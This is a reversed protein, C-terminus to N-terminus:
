NNKKMDLILRVFFFDSFKETARKDRYKTHLYNWGNIQTQM